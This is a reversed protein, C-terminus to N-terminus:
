IEVKIRKRMGALGVLGSGMLLFAPPIPTVTVYSTISAVRMGVKESAVTTTADPWYYLSQTITNSYTLSALSAETNARTAANITNALSGVPTSLRNKYSNYNSTLGTYYSGGQSNYLSYMSTTGSKLGVTGANSGNIVPPIQNYSSGTAWLQNTSRDFAFYVLSFNAPNNVPAFIPIYTQWVGDKFVDYNSLGSRINGLDTAYEAGGNREYVVQVLDLDAFAAFAASSSLQILAVAIFAAFKKKLM